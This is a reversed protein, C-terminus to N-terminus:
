PLKKNEFYKEGELVVKGNVLVYNIGVPYQHPKEFTGKDSIKEADFITIDAYCNEKIWGRDKLGMRTAPLGTM